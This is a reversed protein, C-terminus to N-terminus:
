EVVELLGMERRNKMGVEELCSKVRGPALRGTLKSGPAPPPLRFGPTSCRSFPSTESSTSSSWPTTCSDTRIQQQPPPPPARPAKPAESIISWTISRRSSSGRSRVKAGHCNGPLLLVQRRHLHERARERRQAAAATIIVTFLAHFPLTAPM